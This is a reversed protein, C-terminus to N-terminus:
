NIQLKIMYIIDKTWTPSIWLADQSTMYVDAYVSKNRNIDYKPNDSFKSYITLIFSVKIAVKNRRSTFQSEFRRDFFYDNLTRKQFLKFNTHLRMQDQLLVKSDSFLWLMDRWCQVILLRYLLPLSRNELQSLSRGLHGLKVGTGVSRSIMYSSYWPQNTYWCTEVDVNGDESNVSMLEVFWLDSWWVSPWIVADPWWTRFVNHFGLTVSCPSSPISETRPPLIFGVRNSEGTSCVDNTSSASCRPIPIIFWCMIARVGVGIPPVVLWRTCYM